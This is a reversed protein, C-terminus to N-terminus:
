VGATTGAALQRGALARTVSGVRDCDCACRCPPLAGCVVAYAVEYAQAGGLVGERRSGWGVLEQLRAKLGPRGCWGHWAREACYVGLRDGDAARGADALLGALRPELAVLEFWTPQVPERVEWAAPWPTESFSDGSPGPGFLPTAPPAGAAAPSRNQEALLLLNEPTQAAWRLWGGCIGCRVGLHRSGDKCPRWALREPPLSGCKKCFYNFKM